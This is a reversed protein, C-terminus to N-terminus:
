RIFYYFAAALLALMLIGWVWSLDASKAPPPPAPAPKVVPNEGSVRHATGTTALAVHGGSSRRPTARKSKTHPVAGFALTPALAVNDAYFRFEETGIKLVDGRSLVYSAGIKLGNVKLGNSSYDKIEYGAATATITAHRRSVQSQNIVVDSGPDRGIKLGEPPVVYEKGDVLSILRGGSPPGAAPVAFQEESPPLLMPDIKSMQQTDGVKTEDAFLLEQGAIELKDGHMLPSPTALPVGNVLVNADPAPRIVVHDGGEAGVDVIAQVGDAIIPIDADGGGVRHQGPRLKYQQNNVKLVPM